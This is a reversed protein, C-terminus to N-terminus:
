APYEYGQLIGHIFNPAGANIAAGTYVKIRITTLEEFLNKDTGPIPWPGNAFSGLPFLISQFDKLFIGQANGSGPRNIDISFVISGDGPVWANGVNANLLVGRLCFIMGDPVTHSVVVTPNGTAPTPAAISAAAFVPVSGYPAVEWPPFSDYVIPPTIKNALAVAQPGSRVLAYGPSKSSNPSVPNASM